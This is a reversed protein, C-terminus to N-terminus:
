HNESRIYWSLEEGFLFGAGGQHAVAVTQLLMWLQPPVVTCVALAEINFCSPLPELKM